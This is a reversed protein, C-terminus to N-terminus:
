RYILDFEGFDKKLIGIARLDIKTGKDKNAILQRQFEKANSSVLKGGSIIQINGDRIIFTSSLFFIEANM